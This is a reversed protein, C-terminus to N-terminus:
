ASAGTTPGLQFARGVCALAAAPMPALPTAGLACAVFVPPKIAGATTLAPGARDASLAGSPAIKM